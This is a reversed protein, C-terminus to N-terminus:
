DGIAKAIAGAVRKMTDADAYGKGPAFSFGDGAKRPIVHFHTHFVTQGAAPFNNQMVHFGEAGLAKMLAAGIRRIAALVEAGDAESLELINASHNRPVVLVHGEAFPSIDLFAFVHENEYVKAGPIEGSVIRCFLCDPDTHAM